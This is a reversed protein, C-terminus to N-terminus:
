TECGIGDNDNGDFGHPDPPLVRFNVLPFVDECNLDPPKPPICVTPYSPDCNGEAVVYTPLPPPTAPNGFPAVPTAYIWYDVGGHYSCTGSGVSFSTWGDRCHAGIRVGNGGDGGEGESVGGPIVLVQGVFITNSVLGNAAKLNVVTVGFRLGIRFLTDGRQVTYTASGSAPALITVPPIPTATAPTNTTPSSSAPASGTFPSQFQPSCTPGAPIPVWQVAPINLVQGVSLIASSNLANAQAIAGPLVGYGRGICYLTEGRAVVHQGIISGPTVDPLPSAATLLISALCLLALSTFRSRNM